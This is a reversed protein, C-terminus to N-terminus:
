PSPIRGKIRRDLNDIQYLMAQIRNIEAHTDTDWPADTVGRVQLQVDARLRDLGSAILVRDARSLIM